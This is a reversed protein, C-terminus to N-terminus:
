LRTLLGVGLGGDTGQTYKVDLSTKNSFYFQFLGGLDPSPLNVPSLTAKTSALVGIGWSSFYKIASANVGYSSGKATLQSTLVSTDLELQYRGSRAYGIGLTMNDSDSKLISSLTLAMRWGDVGGLIASFGITADSPNLTKSVSANLGLRIRSWARGAGLTLTGSGLSNLSLGYATQEPITGYIASYGGAPDYSLRGQQIHREDPMAAPNISVADAMTPYAIGGTLSRAFDAHAPISWLALLTGLWIRSQKRRPNKGM